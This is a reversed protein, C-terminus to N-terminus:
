LPRLVLLGFRRRRELLSPDNLDMLCQQTSQKKEDRELQKLRPGRLVESRILSELQVFDLVPDSQKSSVPDRQM